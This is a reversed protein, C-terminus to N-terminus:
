SYRALEKKKLYSRIWLLLLIACIVYVFYWAVVSGREIWEKLFDLQVWDFLYLFWERIVDWARWSQQYPTEYSYSGQSKVYSM